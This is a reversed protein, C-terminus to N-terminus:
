EQRRSWCHCRPALRGDGRCRRTQPRTSPPSLSLLTLVLVSLLRSAASQWSAAICALSDGRQERRLELWRRGRTRRRQRARRSRAREPDRARAPRVGASLEVPYCFSPRGRREDQLDLWVISKHDAHSASTVLRAPSELRDTRAPHTAPWLYPASGHPQGALLSRGTHSGCKHRATHTAPRM